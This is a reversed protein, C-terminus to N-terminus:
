PKWCSFEGSHQRRVIQRKRLQVRRSKVAFEEPEAVAEDNNVLGIVAILAGSRHQYTLRIPHNSLLSGRSPDPSRRCRGWPGVFETNSAGRSHSRGTGAPRINALNDNFRTFNRDNGAELDGSRQPRNEVESAERCREPFQLHADDLGHDRTTKGSKVVACSSEILPAIQWILPPREFSELQADALSSRM